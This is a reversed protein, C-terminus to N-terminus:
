NVKGLENDFGLLIDNGEISQGLNHLRKRINYYLKYLADYKEKLKQYSNLKKM